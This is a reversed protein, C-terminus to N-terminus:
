SKVRLDCFEEDSLDDPKKFPNPASLHHVLNDAFDLQKDREKSLM